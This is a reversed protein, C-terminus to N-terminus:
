ARVALTVAGCASLSQARGRGGTHAGAGPARLDLRRRGAVVHRGRPRLGCGLRDVLDGLPVLFVLGAAYGIQSATVLLAASSPSTKLSAAITHLLPQAYYLNAVAAGSAVALLLVLRPSTSRGGSSTPAPMSGLMPCAM